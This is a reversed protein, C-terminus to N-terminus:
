IFYYILTLFTHDFISGLDEFTLFFGGCLNGTGCGGYARATYRYLWHIPSLGETTENNLLFFDTNPVASYQIETNHTKPDYRM